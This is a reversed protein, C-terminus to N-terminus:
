HDVSDTRFDEESLGFGYQIMGIDIMANRADFRRYKRYCASFIRQEIWIILEFAESSALRDM